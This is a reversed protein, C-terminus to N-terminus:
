FLIRFVLSLIYSQKILNFWLALVISTTLFRSAFPNKALFRKKDYLSSGNLMAIAAILLITAFTFRMVFLFFSLCDVATFLLRDRTYFAAAIFLIVVCM